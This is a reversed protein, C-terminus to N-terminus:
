FLYCCFCCNNLFALCLTCCFLAELCAFCCNRREYTEYYYGNNYYYPPQTGKSADNYAPPQTDIVSIESQLVKEEDTDRVAQYDRNVSHDM